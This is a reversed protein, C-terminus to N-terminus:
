KMSSTWLGLNKLPDKGHGRVEDVMANMTEETLINCEAM